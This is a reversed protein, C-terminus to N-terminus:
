FARKQGAKLKAYAQARAQPNRVDFEFAYPNNMPGQGSPTFYNGSIKRNEEAVDQARVTPKEEVQALRKMRKYAMERRKFEDKVEALLSMFEPDKEQLKEANATNVVEDYDPYAFKLKSAFNENDLQAYTQRAVEAAEKRFNERDKERIRKLKAKDILEEDPLADFEDQPPQFRAQMQDIVQQQKHFLQENEHLKAELAENKKRLAAFNIERDDRKVEQTQSASQSVIGSSNVDEAAM